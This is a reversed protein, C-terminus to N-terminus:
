KLYIVSMWGSPLAIHCCGPSATRSSVSIVTIIRLKRVSIGPCVTCVWILATQDPDVSNAMGDANNPSMVRYYLWMTWIKSHNYCIKQTDSYKPFKRYMLIIINFVKIWLFFLVSVEFHPQLWLCQNQQMDQQLSPLAPKMDKNGYINFLEVGYHINPKISVNINFKM